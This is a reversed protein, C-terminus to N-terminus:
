CLEDGCCMDLCIGDSRSCETDIASCCGLEKCVASGCMEKAPTQGQARGPREALTQACPFIWPPGNTVPAFRIADVCSRFRLPGELRGVENEHEFVAVDELAAGVDLEDRAPARIVLM